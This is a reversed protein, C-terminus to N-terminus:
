LYEYTLIGLISYSHSLFPPASVDRLYYLRRRYPCVWERMVSILSHRWLLFVSAIMLPRWAKDLKSLVSYLSSTWRLVCRNRRWISFNTYIFLFNVGSIFSSRPYRTWADKPLSLSYHRSINLSVPTFVITLLILYDM